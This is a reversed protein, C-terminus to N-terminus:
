ATMALRKPLLSAVQKGIARNPIAEDGLRRLDLVDNLVALFATEPLDAVDVGMREKFWQAVESWHWVQTKDDIHGVPAPFGGPGRRGQSLLRVSEHSRGLRGAIAAVTVLDDPEVRLLEAEPLVTQVETIAKLVARPFSKGPRELEIDFVGNRDPGGLMADNLARSTYVREAYEDLEMAAPIRFLVTFINTNAATTMKEQAPM